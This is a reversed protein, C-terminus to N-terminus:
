EIEGAMLRAKQWPPLNSEEALINKLDIIQDRIVAAQEFELDKAAQRMQGELEHILRKIENVPMQRAKEGARYEGRGEAAMAPSVSLQETLDHVAKIVTFPEIGHATNYDMQKKRRRNTEDIATKMADTM